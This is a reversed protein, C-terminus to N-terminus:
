GHMCVTCMYCMKCFSIICTFCCIQKLSLVYPVVSLFGHSVNGAMVLSSPCETPWLVLSVKDSECSTLAAIISNISDDSLWNSYDGGSVALCEFLTGLCQLGSPKDETKIVTSLACYLM